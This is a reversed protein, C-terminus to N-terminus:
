DIAKAGVVKELEEKLFTNTNSLVIKQKANLKGVPHGKYFLKFSSNLLFNRSIACSQLYEELLFLSKDLSPFKNFITKKVQKINNHFWNEEVSSFVGAKSSLLQSARLGQRWDDRKPMRVVFPAIEDANNTNIYGLRGPEFELQSLPIEESLNEDTIGLVFTNNFDYGGTTRNVLFLQEKGKVRVWTNSLRSMAYKVDGNFL